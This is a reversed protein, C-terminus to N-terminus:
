LSWWGLTQSPNQAQASIKTIIKIKFIIVIKQMLLSMHRGRIPRIKVVSLNSYAPGSSVHSNM